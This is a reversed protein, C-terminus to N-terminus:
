RQATFCVGKKSPYECQGMEKPMTKVEYERIHIQDVNNYHSLVVYRRPGFMLKVENPTTSLAVTLSPQDVAHDNADDRREMKDQVVNVSVSTRKVAKRQSM